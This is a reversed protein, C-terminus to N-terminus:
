EALLNALQVRNKVGTKLYIRYIHDKVSQLSIFLQDKIERNSRGECILRIIEQERKTIGFGAFVKERSDASVAGWRSVAQIGSTFGKLFLLVLVNTTLFLVAEFLTFAWADILQSYHCVRLMVWALIWVLQLRAFGLLRRRKYRQRDHYSKLPKAKILLYLGGVLFVTTTVIHNASWDLILELHSLGLINAAAQVGLIGAWGGIFIGKLLYTPKMELLASIMLIFFINMGGLLLTSLVGNWRFYLKAALSVASTGDVINAKLYYSIIAALAGLNLFLIGCFLHTLFRLKTSKRILSIRAIAATGAILALFFVIIVFHIV